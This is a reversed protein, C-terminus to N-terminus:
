ALMALDNTSQIDLLYNMWREAPIWFIFKGPMNLLISDDSSDSDEWQFPSILLYKHSSQSIKNWTTVAWKLTYIFLWIIFQKWLFKNNILNYIKLVKKLPKWYKREIVKKLPYVQCDGQLNEKFHLNVTKTVHTKGMGKLCISMRANFCM